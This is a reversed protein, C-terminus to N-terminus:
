GPHGRFSVAARATDLNQATILDTLVLEDRPQQERRLGVDDLDLDGGRDLHTIDDKVTAQGAHLAWAVDAREDLGATCARIGRRTRVVAVVLPRTM